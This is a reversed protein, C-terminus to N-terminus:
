LHTLQPLPFPLLLDLTGCGPPALTTIFCLRNSCPHSHWDPFSSPALGGFNGDSKMLRQWPFGAPLMVSLATQNNKRPPRQLRMAAAGVCACAMTPNVPRATPVHCSTGSTGQYLLVSMPLILTQDSDRSGSVRIWPVM